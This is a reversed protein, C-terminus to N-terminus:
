VRLFSIGSSFYKEVELFYYQGKVSQEPEYLLITVNKKQFESLEIANTKIPLSCYEIGTEKDMFCLVSLLPAESIYGALRLRENAEFLYDPLFNDFPKLYCASLFIPIGESKNKIGRIKRMLMRKDRNKLLYRGLFILTLLLLVLVSLLLKM